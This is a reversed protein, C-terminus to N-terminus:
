ENVEGFFIISSVGGIALALLLANLSYDFINGIYEAALSFLIAWVLLQLYFKSKNM